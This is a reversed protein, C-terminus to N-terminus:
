LWNRVGVVFSARWTSPELSAENILVVELFVLLMLLKVKNAYNVSSECGRKLM